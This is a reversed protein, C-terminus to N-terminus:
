TAPELRRLHDKALEAAPSEPSLEIVRKFHERARAGEGQAELALALRLNLDASNKMGGLAAEYATTAGDLDGAEQRVKGLEYYGRAYGPNMNVARELHRIGEEARGERVLLLGLNLQIKEPTPYHPDTLALTWDREATAADGSEAAAWARWSLAETFDERLQLARTFDEMAQPYHALGFYVQGRVFWADPNKEREEIARNAQTLAEPLRQQEVLKRALAMHSEARKERINRQRPSVCALLALAVAVTVGARVFRRSDTWSKM